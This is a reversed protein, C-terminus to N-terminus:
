CQELLFVDRSGVVRYCGRVLSTYSYLNRRLDLIDVILRQLSSVCVHSVVGCLAAVWLIDAITRRHTAKIRPDQIVKLPGFVPPRRFGNRAPSFPIRSSITAFHRRGLRTSSQGVRPFKNTSSPEPTLSVSDRTQYPENEPLSILVRDWLHKTEEEDVEQLEWTRLQVGGNRMWVVMCFRLSLDCHVKSPILMPRIRTGEGPQISQVLAM